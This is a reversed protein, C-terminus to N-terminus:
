AQLLHKSFQLCIISSMTETNIHELDVVENKPPFVVVKSCSNIEGFESKSDYNHETRENKQKLKHM